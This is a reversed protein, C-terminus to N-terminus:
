SSVFISEAMVFQGAYRTFPQGLVNV